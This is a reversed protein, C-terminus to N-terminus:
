VKYHTSSSSKLSKQIQAWLHVLGFSTAIKLLQPSVASRHILM